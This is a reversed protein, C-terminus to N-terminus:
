FQSQLNELSLPAPTGSVCWRRHASLMRVAKAMATNEEKIVHSEDLIVRWFGLKALPPVYNARGKRAIEAKAFGSRANMDSVLVQYTTIVIDNDKLISPDTTRKGGYYQYVKLTGPRTKDMAEDYRHAVSVTAFSGRYM